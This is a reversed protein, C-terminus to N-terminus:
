EKVVRLAPQNKNSSDGVEGGGEISQLRFPELHDLDTPIGQVAEGVEVRYQLPIEIIDNVELDLLRKAIHVRLRLPALRMAECLTKLARFDRKRAADGLGDLLKNLVAAVKEADTV